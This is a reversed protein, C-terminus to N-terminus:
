GIAWNTLTFTNKTKIKSLDSFAIEQLINQPYQFNFRLEKPISQDYM